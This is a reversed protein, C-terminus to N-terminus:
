SPELPSAASTSQQDEDDSIMQTTSEDSSEDSSEGDTIREDESDTDRKVMVFLLAWGNTTESKFVRVLASLGHVFGDVYWGIDSCKLVASPSYGYHFDFTQSLAGQVVVASPAHGYVGNVIDGARVMLQRNSIIAYEFSARIVSIAGDVTEHMGIRRLLQDTYENGSYNRRGILKLLREITKTTEAYATDNVCSKIWHCLQKTSVVNEYSSAGLTALQAYLFRPELMRMFSVAASILESISWLFQSDTLHRNEDILLDWVRLKFGAPTITPLNQILIAERQCQEGQKQLIQIDAEGLEAANEPQPFLRILCLRALDLLTPVERKLHTHQKVVANEFRAKTSRFFSCSLHVSDANFFWESACDRKECEVVSLTNASWM